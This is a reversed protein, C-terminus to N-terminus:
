VIKKFIKEVKKNDKQIVFSIELFKKWFLEVKQSVLSKEFNNIYLSGLWHAEQFHNGWGTSGSFSQKLWIAQIFLFNM